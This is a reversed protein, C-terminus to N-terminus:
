DVTFNPFYVIREMGMSDVEPTGLLDLLDYGNLDGNELLEVTLEMAARAPNGCVIGIYNRGFMGVYDDRFRYDHNECFAEIQVLILERDM